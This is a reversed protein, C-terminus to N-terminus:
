AVPGAPAGSSAKSVQLAFSETKVSRKLIVFGDPTVNVYSSYQVEYRVDPNLGQLLPRVQALEVQQEVQTHRHTHTLGVSAFDEDRARVRFPRYSSRDRLVLSEPVSTTYIFGEYRDKEFRPPNRSRKMVEISVQTVAFQDRNSVQSAQDPRTLVRLDLVEM